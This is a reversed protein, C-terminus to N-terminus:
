RRPASCTSATRTPRACRSRSRRAVSAATAMSMASAARLWRGNLARSPKVVSGDGWDISYGSVSDTGPDVVAGVSLTYSAAEAVTAAGSVAAVPAVNNVTVSKTTTSSGGDEDSVTVTITRGTANALGDEDDTFVHEVNGGLAGLEVASLVQVPSGDGWDISYSLTDATGAPDSGVLALEYSAGEGTQEAGTLAVSPAM